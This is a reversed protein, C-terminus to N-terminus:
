VFDKQDYECATPPLQTIGVYFGCPTTSAVSYGCINSPGNYRAYNNQRHQNIRKHLGTRVYGM